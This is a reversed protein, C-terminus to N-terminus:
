QVDGPLREAAAAANGGADQLVGSCFALRGQGGGAGGLNSVSQPLLTVWEIFDVGTPSTPSLATITEANNTAVFGEVNGSTTLTGSPDPSVTVFTDNFLNGTTTDFSDITAGSGGPGPGGGAPAYVVLVVINQAGVRWRRLRCM